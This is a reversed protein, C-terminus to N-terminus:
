AQEKEPRSNKCTIKKNWKCTLMDNFILGDINKSTNVHVEIIFHLGM